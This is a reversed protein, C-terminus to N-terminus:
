DEDSDEEEEGFSLRSRKAAAKGADANLESALRSRKQELRRERDAADKAFASKDEEQRRVEEAKQFEPDNKREAELLKRERAKLVVQQQLYGEATMLGAKEAPNGRLCPRNPDSDVERPAMVRARAAAFDVGSFQQMVDGDRADQAIQRRVRARDPDLLAESGDDRHAEFPEDEAHEAM